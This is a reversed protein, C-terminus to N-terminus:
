SEGTSHVANSQGQSTLMIELLDSMSLIGAPRPNGGGFCQTLICTRVYVCVCVCEYTVIFRPRLKCFIGSVLGM